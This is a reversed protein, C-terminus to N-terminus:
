IATDNIIGHEHYLQEDTFYMNINLNKEKYKDLGAWELNDIYTNHFENTKTHLGFSGINRVRSVCPYLTKRGNAHYKGFPWGWSGNDNRRIEGLWEIGYCLPHRGRESIYDVGFVGGLAQIEKWREKTIVFGGGPEFWNRLCANNLSSSKIYPRHCERIFPSAAFIDGNQLLLNAAWEMYKLYDRAVLVDDELHITYKSDPGFGNELCWRTNGACGLRNQHVFCETSIDPNNFKFEDFVLYSDTNNEAMDISIIVHYNKIGECRSLSDLSQKLFDPRNWAKLTLINM